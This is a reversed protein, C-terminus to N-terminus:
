QIISRNVLSDKRALLHDIEAFMNNFAIENESFYVLNSLWFEDSHQLNSISIYKEPLFRSNEMGELFRMALFIRFKKQSNDIDDKRLYDVSLKILKNFVDSNRFLNSPYVLMDGKLANVCQPNIMYLERFDRYSLNGNLIHDFYFKASPKQPSM